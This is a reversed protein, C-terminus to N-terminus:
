PKSRLRATLEELPIEVWISGAGSTDGLDELERLLADLAPPTAGAEALSPAHRSLSQLMADQESQSPGGHTDWGALRDLVEAALPGVEAGRLLAPIRYVTVSAPGSRRLELGLAPLSERWEEAAQARHEDTQVAQPLLLPQGRVGGDELAARLRLYAVRASASALDLLILGASTEALVYRHRVAGLARGLPRHTQAQSPPSVDERRGVLASYRALQDAVGTAPAPVHRHGRALGPVPVPALTAEPAAGSVGALGRAVSRFVFDHVLRAERFRVEHKTPHVNVDAQTPDMELYLV